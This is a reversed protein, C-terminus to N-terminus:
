VQIEATVGSGGAIGPRQVQLADGKDVNSGREEVARAMLKLATNGDRDKIHLDAGRTVLLRVGEDDGNRVKRQMLKLLYLLPTDGEKDSINLDAGMNVLLEVMTFSGRATAQFLMTRGQEDKMNLPVRKAKMLRLFAQTHGHEAAQFHPSFSVKLQQPFPNAGNRLLLDLLEMNNFQAAYSLAVRGNSDCLDLDRVTPHNVILIAIESLQERAAYVLPSTNPHRRDTCMVDLDTRALLAGLVHRGCSRLATWLPSAGTSDTLNPNVRDSALLAQVMRLSYGEVATSIAAKGTNPDLMDPDAGHRLLLSILDEHGHTLAWMLATRGSRDRYNVDVRSDTVLVEAAQRHGMTIAMFLPVTYEVAQPDMESGGTVFMSQLMRTNTDPPTAGDWVLRPEEKTGGHDLIVRVVDAHGAWAATCLPTWPQWEVFRFGAAHDLLYKVVDAHGQCAAHKLPTMGDRTVDVDAGLALMRRVPIIGGNRAGWFLASSNFYRISNRHLTNSLLSHLLRHSRSLASLDGETEVQDAISLLVEPPLDLLSM